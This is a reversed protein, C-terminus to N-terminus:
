AVVHGSADTVVLGDDGFNYEANASDDGLNAEIFYVHDSAPYTKTIPAQSGGSITLTFQVSSGSHHAKFSFGALAVQASSSPQGPYLQYTYAAYATSSLLPGPTASGSPAPTPSGGSTPTAAGSAGPSPQSSAAATPRGAHTGTLGSSGALGLSGPHGYGHVALIAAMVAATSLAIAGRVGVTEGAIRM